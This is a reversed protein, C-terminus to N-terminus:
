LYNSDASLELVGIVPCTESINVLIGVNVAINKIMM